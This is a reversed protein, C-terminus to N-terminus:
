HPEAAVVPRHPEAKPEHPEADTEDGDRHPEADVPRHPEAGVVIFPNYFDDSRDKDDEEPFVFSIQRAEVPDGACTLTEYLQQGLRTVIAPDSIPVLREGPDVLRAEGELWSGDARQLAYETRGTRHVRAYMKAEFGTVDLDYAGESVAEVTTQVEPGEVGGCGFVAALGVLSLTRNLRMM